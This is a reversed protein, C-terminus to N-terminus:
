CCCTKNDTWQNEEKKRYVTVCADPCVVACSACGTCRAAGGDALRAYEYGKHNVAESLSVLGLPCAVACLGCGKCREIDVVIAGRVKSM